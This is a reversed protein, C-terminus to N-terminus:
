YGLGQKSPNASSAVYSSYGIVVFALLVAILLIIIFAIAPIIISIMYTLITKDDDLNSIEMYGQHLNTFFMITTFLFIIIAIVVHLYSGIITLLFGITLTTEAVGVLTVIKKMDIKKKFVQTHVLYMVGILVASVIAMGLTGKLWFNTDVSITIGLEALSETITAFFQQITKLSFGIKKLCNDLFIHLLGGFVVANVIISLCAVNFYSEKCYKELTEKPKKFIGKIIDFYDNIMSGADISTSTEKETDETEKRSNVKTEEEKEVKEIVKEKEKEEKQEARCSCPKGDVLPKGCKTCFKAM